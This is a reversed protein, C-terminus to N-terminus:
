APKLISIQQQKAFYDKWPDSRRKKLHEYTKALTFINPRDIDKLEQWRIPMAVASVDRARLSYPVVATAGRGNRLYDVFIKNGRDKKALSVTYLDPHRSVMEQGLTKTFTKIQDWTYLPTIPVHVHLGKGGSVKLFSKLDLDDLIGKLELAAEKVQEWTIGPGPDFDMVIQDPHEVNGGRSGWAHLEFAGMQSLELLGEASDLTLYAKPGSREHITVPTFAAPVKGSIHKQFFCEKSTGEPCRLLALPRDSIHPLILEAFEQYYQAVQLKTIKEKEYLIKDPNSIPLTVESATTKKGRTKKVKATVGVEKLSKEKEIHVEKAAKDERLGHFVGTRLVGDATWNGFTIDAVLDPKVWQAGKEKPSNIDFPSKSQVRKLLKNRVETLSQETFGTGVKGVYRFKGDDDYAGLLLAGFSARAGEGRTFGGIVFEQQQKCKSKMWAGSRRSHYTSDKHKSILGELKYSCAAKFLAQAHGVIHDSYRILPDKLLTVIKELRHKREWLPLERCDEGNLFLLDFAYYFIRNTGHAKMSNQLMQFDSRGDEGLWVVEGDIIANKVPLAALAKAVTPYRQTWNLGSRTYLTVSDKEFHAQIRYGDFKTEHLWQDGEPPEEVLVALEPAIFEPLKRVVKGTSMPKVIAKKKSAAKKRTAKPAESVEVPIESEIPTVEDGTRAYEDTRKILLWQSKNGAPRSTKLLMWEGHLKKGKLKFDIHGKKFGKEPDGVPEWTGTDYIYVRGAGYQDEPIVGEFSGYSIPHDETEVALRKVKPDHSPGKPVAWSKLVGEWELRFDYHLRSAHHEQVVFMLPASKKKRVKKEGKPEPTIKFDRKKIYERLAM